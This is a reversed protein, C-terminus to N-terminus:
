RNLVDKGHGVPTNGKLKVGLVNDEIQYFENEHVKILLLM